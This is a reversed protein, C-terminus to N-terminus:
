KIDIMMVESSRIEVNNNGVADDFAGM